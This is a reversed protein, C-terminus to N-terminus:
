PQKQAAASLKPLLGLSPRHELFDGQRLGVLMPQRPLVRRQLTAACSLLTRREAVVALMHALSLLTTRAEWARAAHPYPAAWTPAGHGPHPTARVHGTVPHSRNLHSMLSVLPGWRLELKWSKWDKLNQFGFRLDKWHGFNELNQMVITQFM